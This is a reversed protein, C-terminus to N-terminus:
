PRKFTPQVQMLDNPVYGFHATQHWRMEPFLQNRNVKKQTGLQMFGFPFKSSTKTSESWINRWSEILSPFNCGYDDKKWWANAEGQYWLAGKIDLKTLPHIMANYLSSYSNQPRNKDVYTGSNGCTEFAQPPMWAEVRTGGWNTDILGFVKDKGLVNAMFKATLSCVASFKKLSEVDSTSTWKVDKILLDNQKENSAMEPLHFLRFNKYEALDAIEQTGNFIGELPWKMNSQGSCIWVDGFLVDM